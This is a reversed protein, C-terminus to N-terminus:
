RGLAIRLDNLLYFLRTDLTGTDCAELYEVLSTMIEPLDKNLHHTQGNMLLVAAELKRIQRWHTDLNMDVCLAHAALVEIGRQPAHMTDGRLNQLKDKFLNAFTM